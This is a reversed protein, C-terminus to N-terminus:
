GLTTETLYRRRDVLEVTPGVLTVTASLPL